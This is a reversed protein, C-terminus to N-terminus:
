APQTKAPSPTPDNDLSTDEVTRWCGWITQSRVGSTALPSLSRTNMVVNRSTVFSAAIGLREPARSESIWAQRSCCLFPVSYPGAEHVWARAACTEQASLIRCFYLEPM